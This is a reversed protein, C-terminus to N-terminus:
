LDYSDAGNFFSAMRITSSPFSSSLIGKVSRFM